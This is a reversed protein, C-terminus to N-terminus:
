NAKIDFGVSVTNYIFQDKAKDVANSEDGYALGWATRDINFGAKASVAGDVISVTAPFKINKTTGRMTLNGSIWHTPNGALESDSAPTNETEFEDKDEISGASFPEVGTMEFVAEPFNAADFFDASQLHGWLKGYNENDAPIDDIRLGTIDFAFRAGTLTTGEVMVEGSTVPIIGWHKGTPKYGTWNVSSTEPSIALTVGSGAAVDQADTTEVTDGPKGCAFALLAAAVFLGSKQILKM